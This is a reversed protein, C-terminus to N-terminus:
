HHWKTGKPNTTKGNTAGRRTVDAGGSPAKEGLIGPSTRDTRKRHTATNAGPTRFEDQSWMPEGNEDLPPFHKIAARARERMERVTRPRTSPHLLDVMLRFAMLLARRQEFRLSM